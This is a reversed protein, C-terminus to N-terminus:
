GKATNKKAPVSRQFAQFAQFPQFTLFPPKVNRRDRDLFVEPVFGAVSEPVGVTFVGIQYYNRETGRGRTRVLVLVVENQNRATNNVCKNQRKKSTTNISPRKEEKEKSKEM